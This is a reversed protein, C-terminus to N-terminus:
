SAQAIRENLSIRSLLYPTHCQIPEYTLFEEQTKSQSGLVRM